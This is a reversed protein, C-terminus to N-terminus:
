WDMRVSAFEIILGAGLV